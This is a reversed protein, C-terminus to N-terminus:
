FGAVAGSPFLSKQGAMSDTAANKMRRVAVYEFRANAKRAELYRGWELSSRALWYGSLNACIRMGGHDRAYRVVERVIRRKREATGKLNCARALVRASVPGGAEHLYESELREKVQTSRAKLVAESSGYAPKCESGSAIPKSTEVNLTRVNV